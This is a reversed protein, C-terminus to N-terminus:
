SSKFILFLNTLFFFFPSPGLGIKGVDISFQGVKNFNKMLKLLISNQTKLLHKGSLRDTTQLKINLQFLFFFSFVLFFYSLKKDKIYSYHLTDWYKLKLKLKLQYSM